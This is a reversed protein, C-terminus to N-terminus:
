GLSSAILNGLFRCCGPTGDLCCRTAGRLILDYFFQPRIEGAAKVPQGTSRQSYSGQHQKLSQEATFGPMNKTKM